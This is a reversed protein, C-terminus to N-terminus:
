PHIADISALLEIRDFYAQVVLRCTTRGSQLASHIDAITTDLINFAM